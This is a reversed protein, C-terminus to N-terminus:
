GLNTASYKSKELGKITGNNLSLHNCDNNEGILYKCKKLNMRLRAIEYEDHLKRVIYSLDQEDETIVVQDDTFHM